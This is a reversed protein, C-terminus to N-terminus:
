VVGGGGGGGRGVGAVAAMDEEVREMELILEKEIMKRQERVVRRREEEKAQRAGEEMAAVLGETEILAERLRGVEEEFGKTNNLQKSYEEKEAETESLKKQITAIEKKQAVTLRQQTKLAKALEEIQEQLRFVEQRSNERDHELAEQAAQAQAQHHHPPLPFSPHLPTLAHIYISSNLCSSVCASRCSLVKVQAHVTEEMAQAAQEELEMGYAHLRAKEEEHEEERQRLLGRMEEVEAKLMWVRAEEEEKEAQGRTKAVLVRDHQPRRRSSGRSEEDEEGNELTLARAKWGEVEALSERETRVVQERLRALQQKMSQYGGLVDQLATV